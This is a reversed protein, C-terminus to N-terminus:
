KTVTPLMRSDHCRHHHGPIPPSQQDPSTPPLQHGPIPPSQHDPSTPPLQHGPIPPSQHDSGPPSLQLDPSTPPLQHGPIPPSQHDSGPPSLQLDPSTPPLQHGPIPPSQHDPSTPPLRHGPTPPSQHHSGPPSLQLDPSPRPLTEQQGELLRQHVNPVFFLLVGGVMPPVGALYFAMHYDGFHDHLLGALPPGATMPLAMLGMLYGIAQSARQPGVLEFTVPAMLTIVCGDCLGLLLCVAVLGEFRVCLPVLMSALGLVMFSGAQLYIKRAGHLLDGVRGFLLRGVCSTVGICVLLVWEKVPTEVFQEEVFSMLYIYPVFNGLMATAVGFAWVRYSPLHFVGLNCYRRTQALGQQWGSSLNASSDQATNTSLDRHYLRSRFSFAMAAQILMLASLIQFTTSLGLPTGVEELLAPLSISFVSSGAMVVGNVLGLRQPFYHGLTVLSPLFVFSSGCGFLVGYTFYWLGLSVTFSSTLLGLFAVLAGCIATVRCGLHDTVISVLPSCLFVMGMALAGVWAIAFQSVDNNSDKHAKVLMMHIIGFSKQIGFISGNCWTAALVVLWVFRGEPFCELDPASDARACSVIQSSPDKNEETECDPRSGDRKMEEHEYYSLYTGLSQALGPDPIESQTKQSEM